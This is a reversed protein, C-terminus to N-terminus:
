LPDIKDQHTAQLNRTVSIKGFQPWPPHPHPWLKKDEHWEQTSSITLCLLTTSYIKNKKISMLWCQKKELQCFSVKLAVWTDKFSKPLLHYGYLDTKGGLSLIHNQAIKASFTATAAFSPQIVLHNSKTKIKIGCIQHAAVLGIIIYLIKIYQIKEYVAWALGVLCKRELHLQLRQPKFM